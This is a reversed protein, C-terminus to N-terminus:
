QKLAEIGPLTGKEIFELMAGGGTSLHTIKELYEEKSIVALTDGGGVISFAKSNQTIAYYLFDTGRAFRPNECYGMPGNWVITKAKDIIAGFQAQTQPGIDLISLHPPIDEIKVVQEIDKKNGVIVDNPLVITTKKQEAFRLLERVKEVEKTEALSQGIQYGQALLFTNALGGGLLLYDVIETLKSLFNLKTSIKAGGVIAIFPKKPHRTIKGIMAVEKKLLLGAFSPLFQPVGVISAENRHSVGFADNVYVDGLSAVKQAFKLDNAKEEPYFRINELILIQDNKQDAILRKEEDTLFDNVLTVQYNPLLKKLHQTVVKLSYQPNRKQPNDLHSILILKNKKKLLYNITPLSQKIRADDAITLKDTLSVNFDVRLIIKKERIEQNDITKVKFGDLM